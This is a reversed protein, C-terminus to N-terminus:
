QIVARVLLATGSYRVFYAKKLVIGLKALNPCLVQPPPSIHDLSSDVLIVFISKAKAVVAFIGDSGMKSYHKTAMLKQCLQEAKTLESLEVEYSM